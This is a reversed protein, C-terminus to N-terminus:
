DLSKFLSGVKGCCRKQLDESKFLNLRAGKLPDDHSMLVSMAREDKEFHISQPAPGSRMSLLLTISKEPTFM